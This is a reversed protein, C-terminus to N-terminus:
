KEEKIGALKKALKVKHGLNAQRLIMVRQAQPSGAGHMSEVLATGGTMNEVLRAMRMREETPAEDVGRFYKEVYKGIEDHHLDKESPMTAMCGGSIDHSLRAIEYIFRTVNQKVTNALLPNVFYAGSPTPAGECSCAISGCYLTETLHVMEVIKDRVHSAKAAGNYEAMATTAGIIVDSVGAKCGGYNQRHYSAFREVLLGAYKYEGCMFVREWPVFVDELITLAEGGVTGYEANGQDLDGKELRRTDNTQRGFIHIVGPSDTPLACAVAYDGDEEGMAMTPMILMEHSNVIGTQHVKAGRIVIGKDNKAVVHVFMDPDKQKAPPLGRDGKPDTMAGAVMLDNDQIYELYRRFRQHYDTGLEQDMEYTVTYNANLADWGVCRQYCSGTKGAILRLMKVKKILDDTSQHIHTFRSIKSGTLHSTATVLAETTPDHALDFTLAAANIHPQFLPHDVISDIKEGFAYVKINLARLSERYSNGDRLAM